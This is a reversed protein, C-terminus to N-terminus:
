RPACRPGSSSSGRKAPEKRKKSKAASNSKRRPSSERSPSGAYADMWKKIEKDKFNAAISVAHYNIERDHFHCVAVHGALACVYFQAIAKANCNTCGCRVGSLNTYRRKQIKM